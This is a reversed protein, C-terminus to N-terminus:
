HHIICKSLTQGPKLQFWFESSPSKLIKNWKAAAQYWQLERKM